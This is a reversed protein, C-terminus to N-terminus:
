LEYRIPLSEKKDNRNVSNAVYYSLKPLGIGKLQKEDYSSKYYNIVRDIFFLIQSKPITEGFKQQLKERIENENRGYRFNRLFNLVERATERNLGKYPSKNENLVSRIEEKILQKLQSHKM